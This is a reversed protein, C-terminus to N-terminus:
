VKQSSGISDPKESLESFVFKTNERSKRLVDRLRLNEGTTQGTETEMVRSSCIDVLKLLVKRCM